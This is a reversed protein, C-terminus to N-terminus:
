VPLSMDKLTLLEKYASALASQYIKTKMAFHNMKTQMKMRELKVYACLSAYLHNSQTRITHSPSKSFSANSKLSKHYEEVKWRKQYIAQIQSATLDLDSTVLYLVGESGDKNRFVKKCLLLPFDVGELWVQLTQNEELELSSIPVYIGQKKDEESLAVLRNDKLPFVFDKNKETKIFTMNEACAFWIDALVYRFPIGNSISTGVLERFYQHKSTPCVRKMKGKKKDMEWATKLILQYGVPMSVGQSHYICSLLNIGKISRNACHDYHWCILESEDTYAKEEVSDDIILVGEESQIQRVTPKIYQWLNKSTFINTSLLRTIKDHSVAGDLLKSLGTATIQGFSCILYDTYIDLLDNKM